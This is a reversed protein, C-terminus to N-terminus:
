LGLRNRMQRDSFGYKRSLEQANYGNFEKRAEEELCDAFITRTCPVYITRGGFYDTFACIADFGSLGMITDYPHLIETPHLLAAQRLIANNM